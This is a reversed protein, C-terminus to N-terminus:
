FCALDAEGVALTTLRTVVVICTWFSLEAVLRSVDADEVVTPHLAWLAVLDAVVVVPWETMRATLGAWNWFLTSGTCMWTVVAKIAEEADWFTFGTFLLYDAAWAVGFDIAALCDNRFVAGVCIAVRTFLVDTVTVRLAEVSIVTWQVHWLAALKFIAVEVTLM